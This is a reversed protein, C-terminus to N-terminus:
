KLIQILLSIQRARFPQLQLLYNLSNSQGVSDFLGNFDIALDLKQGVQQRFM